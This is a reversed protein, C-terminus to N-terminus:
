AATCFLSSSRHANGGSNSISCWRNNEKRTLGCLSTIQKSPRDIARSVDDDYASGRSYICGRRDDAKSCRFLNWLGYGYGYCWMKGSGRSHNYLIIISSSKVSKLPPFYHRVVERLRSVANVYIINTEPTRLLWSSSILETCVIMMCFNNIYWWRYYLDLSRTAFAPPLLPDSFSLLFPRFIM